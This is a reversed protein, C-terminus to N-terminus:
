DKFLQGFLRNAARQAEQEAKGNVYIKTRDWEPEIKKPEIKAAKNNAIIALNKSDAERQLRIKLNGRYAVYGALFFGGFMLVAIFVAEM